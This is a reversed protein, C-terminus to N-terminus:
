RDLRRSPSSRRVAHTTAGAPNSMKCSIAAVLLSNALALALSCAAYVATLQALLLFDGNDGLFRLAIAMAAGATGCMFHRGMWNKASYFRPALEDIGEEPSLKRFSWWDGLTMPIAITILAITLFSILLILANM